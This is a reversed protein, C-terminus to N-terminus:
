KMNSGDLKQQDEMVLDGDIAFMQPPPPVHLGCAPLEVLESTGWEDDKAFDDGPPLDNPSRSHLGIIDLYVTTWMIFNKIKEKKLIELSNTFHNIAEFGKHHGPRQHSVEADQLCTMVAKLRNNLHPVSHKKTQAKLCVVNEMEDKLQLFHHVNM